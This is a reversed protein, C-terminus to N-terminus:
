AQATLDKNVNKHGILAYFLIYALGAFLVWYSALYGCADAVGGQIVPLIGVGCVM